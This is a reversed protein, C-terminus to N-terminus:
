KSLRDLVNRTIREVAPENGGLGHSWDTSGVTVVTGGRTDYWLIKGNPDADALKPNIADSGLAGALIANLAAIPLFASACRLCPM